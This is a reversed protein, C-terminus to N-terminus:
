GVVTCENSLTLIKTRMFTKIMMMMMVSMM